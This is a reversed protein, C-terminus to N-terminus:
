TRPIFVTIVLQGGTSLYASETTGGEGTYQEIDERGCYGWWSNQIDIVCSTCYYLTVVAVHVTFHPVEQPTANQM